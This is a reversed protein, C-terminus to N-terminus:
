GGIERSYLQTLVSSSRRRSGITMSTRPRLERPSSEQAGQQTLWSSVQRASHAESWPRGISTAAGRSHASRDEAAPTGEPRSSRGSRTRRPPIWARRARSFISSSSIRGAASCRASCPSLRPSRRRSFTSSSRGSSPGSGFHRITSRAPEGPFEPRHRRQPGQAAGSGAQGAAIGRGQERDQRRVRASGRHHPAPCRAQPRDVKYHLETTLKGKTINYGAFKGSYPNFISLEMNRFDLALDTYLVPSLVNVEVPSRYRLSLMWAATFDVNARSNPKSSLGLVTGKLNQIAPPSIRSSRCIRSSRRTRGRLLIKKIAMPM